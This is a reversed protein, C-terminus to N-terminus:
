REREWEAKGEENYYILLILKGSSDFNKWTHYKKGKRYAGKELTESVTNYHLWVGEKLGNRYYGSDTLIGKNNYNMFLGDHLCAIFPPHYDQLLRSNGIVLAELTNYKDLTNHHFSHPSHMVELARSGEKLYLSTLAFKQYRPHRNRVEYQIRVFLDADYNRIHILNGNQDWVKWTGDPIGKVLNGSDLMKGNSHYSIWQGNLKQQVVRSKFLTQEHQIGTIDGEAEVQL